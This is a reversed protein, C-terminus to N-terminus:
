WVKRRILIKTYWIRNLTRLQEKKLKTVLQKEFYNKVTRHCKIVYMPTQCVIAYQGITLDWGTKLVSTIPVSSCENMHTDDSAVKVSSCSLQTTAVLVM